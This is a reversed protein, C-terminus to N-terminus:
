EVKELPYAFVGLNLSDDSPIEVYDEAGDFELAEGRRGAVIKPDGKMEGDNEGMLDKVKKGEITVEDLSWYSVLGDKVVQAEASSQWALFALLVLPFIMTLNKHLM